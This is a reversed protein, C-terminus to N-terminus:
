AGKQSLFKEFFEERSCPKGFFYGQILNPETERVKTLETENEIGEVCVKLGLSHAMEIIHKLLRYEYDRSMAKMIFTRDVKVVTPQLDCLCHLNSYGTGFDDLALSIGYERLGNWLKTFHPNVELYGSETLEVCVSAPSLGYEEVMEIIDRLIRSKLVQVFSLNVNVKFNPLYKQWERCAELAQTLVWKGVPIILGTEELIPIFEAPSIMRGSPTWFRLLAEAGSLSGDESWVLPQFYVDFGRFDNKVAKHLMRNLEQRKIYNEYSAEEFVYCNNKGDRKAESLSFESLKMANEFTGNTCENGLVGGSITFVAKYQNERIFESVSSRIDRYLKAASATDRGTFDVIGFEDAVIRFLKQGPLINSEICEATKRLIYDGYEIGQNENIDKFEDIGLRLIFGEPLKGEYVDYCKKLSSEGLLGSVNDAMQKKGIENICGVLFQPNGEADKLVKGRCNIWIPKRDHDMWRYHLNHYTKKGESLLKLEVMLMDVDEPYVFKRHMEIVNRFHDAPLMFRNVANPSIRYDDKQFDCVYLYDDMSPSFLDIIKAFQETTINVLRTEMRIILGRKVRIKSKIMDLKDFFTM